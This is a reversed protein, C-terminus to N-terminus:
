PMQVMARPFVAEQVAGDDFTLVVRVSEVSNEELAIYPLMEAVNILANPSNTDTHCPEMELSTLAGDNIAYSIDWLGCRWSLLHTFYVLDQGEWNRVGVWNAQTMELIPRVETATTFQGTPTQDEPARDSAPSAPAAIAATETAAPGDGQDPTIGFATGIIFPVIELLM